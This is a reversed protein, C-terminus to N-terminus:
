EKRARANNCYRHTLRANEPITKGGQWYQEIHDVAADDINTIYNGCIACTPNKNFLEEKLARSFCRPQKNGSSLLNDLMNEVANCRYKIMDKSSTSRSIAEIFKEDSTMLHILAERIADLSGMVINVDKDRFGFMLADYLSVNFRKEEWKGDKANETGAYFRRFAMPGFLSHIIKVSNAFAKRLSKEDEGSINQYAKADKNLFTKIPAEYKLYTAHYLAAFRLALEVDRFRVDAEKIGIVTRFNENDALERILNIYKGRYICNRLEMDNLAVAGTNLREFIAFKLEEDSDKLFTITRITGRKITKQQEKDLEKFTKKNLDSFSRLGTLKFENNMFRTIATLRQQGDIVVEKDADEALYVTPLPIHLLISEILRSAKGNDWVYNRQFNPQLDIDGDKIRGSLTEFDPDSVRTHISKSLPTTAVEDEELGDFVIDDAM